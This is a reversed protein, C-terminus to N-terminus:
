SDGGPRVIAVRLYWDVAGRHDKGASRVHDGNLDPPSEAAVTLAATSSRAACCAAHRSASREQVAIVGGAPTHAVAEAFM